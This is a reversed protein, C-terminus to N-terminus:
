TFPSVILWGAYYFVERALFPIQTRLSQYASTKTPSAYAQMGLDDAMSMARCMHLPDSVILADKLGEREMITKSFALNKETVTSLEEKLIAEEPIGLGILYAAAEYADSHANGAATGGTVIITKVMSGRYLAAAHELRQKYVNSIGGDWAGAGLVVAADCPRTEDVTSSSVVGAACSLLFTLLATIVLTIIARKASLGKM